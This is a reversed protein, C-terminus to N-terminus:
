IPDVSERGGTRAFPPGLNHWLVLQIRSTRSRAPTTEVKIFRAGVNWVFIVVVNFGGGGSDPWRETMRADKNVTM